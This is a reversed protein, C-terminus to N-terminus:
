HYVLAGSGEVPLPQRVLNCTACHTTRRAGVKNEPKDMGFSTCAHEVFMDHESFSGPDLLLEIRERATLKGQWLPPLRLIPLPLSPPPSCCWKEYICLATFPANCLASCM